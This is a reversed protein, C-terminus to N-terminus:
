LVKVVGNISVRNQAQLDKLDRTVTTDTTGLQQAINKKVIVTSPQGNFKSLIDLLQQQRQQKTDTSTSPHQDVYDTITSSNNDVHQNNNDDVDNTYVQSNDVHQRLQQNEVKLEDVHQRLKDVNGTLMNVHNTLMNNTETLMNVSNDESHQRKRQHLMDDLRNKMTVASVILVSMITLPILSFIALDPFMKLFVVILLATAAYVIMVFLAARQPAEAEEKTKTKNFSSAAFYVDVSVLGLLEMGVGTLIALVWALPISIHLLSPFVNAVSVITLGAPITQILIPAFVEAIGMYYRFKVKLNDLSDDYDEKTYQKKM